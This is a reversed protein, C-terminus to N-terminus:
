DTGEIEPDDRDDPDLWDYHGADVYAAEACQPRWDCFSCAGSPTASFDTVEQIRRAIGMLRRSTADADERTLARLRKRGSRLNWAIATVDAARPLQRTVRLVLHGIDLQLDTEDDM